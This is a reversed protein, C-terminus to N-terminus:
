YLCRRKPRVGSARAPTTTSRRIRPRRWLRVVGKRVRSWGSNRSRAADASM